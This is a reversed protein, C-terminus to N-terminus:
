AAVQKKQGYTKGALTLSYVEMGVSSSSLSIKFQFYNGRGTLFVQRTLFEETASRVMSYTATSAIPTGNYGYTLTINGSSQYLYNLIAKNIQVIENANKLTNWGSQWYSSIASTTGDYTDSQSSINGPLYLRGDSGGYYRNPSTTVGAIPEVTIFERLGVYGTTCKLWCKNLTDWIAAGVNITAGSQTIGSIVVWDHDNGYHRFVRIRDFNQSSNFLRPNHPLQIIEKGRIVRVKSDPSYFYIEGNVETVAHKNVCGVSDDFLYASFPAETLPMQYIKSYKFLFVSNTTTLAAATLAGDDGLTGVVASGSGAGTWDEANGIISWYLTSTLTSTRYAFVRNNATFGGYATPPSGTLAAANGSGAWKWPADPTGPTAGGGFAILVDAFVFMDWSASTSAAVSVAGTIDTFTGTLPFTDQYIKTGAVGVLWDDGDIQQYYFLGSFAGDLATGGQGVTTGYRTRFGKGTPLVVVNDLDVAQNPPISDIATQTTLGGGFDDLTIYQGQYAM